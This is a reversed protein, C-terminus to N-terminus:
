IDFAPRILGSLCWGFVCSVSEFRKIEDESALQQPLYEMKALNELVVTEDLLHLVAFDRKSHHYVIPLLEAQYAFMGDQHRLEISYHVHRHNVAKLWDAAYYKPWKWPAM